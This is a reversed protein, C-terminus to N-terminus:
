EILEKKKRPYLDVRHTQLLGAGDLKGGAELYEYIKAKDPVITTVTKTKMFEPHNFGDEVFVSAKNQVLTAWRMFGQLKKTSSNKMHNLMHSKLYETTKSMSQAKSGIAELLDYLRSIKAENHEIMEILAEVTEEKYLSLAQIRKEIEPTITGEAAAIEFNLEESLLISHNLKSLIEPVIQM